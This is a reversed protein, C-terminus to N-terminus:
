RSSRRESDPADGLGLLTLRGLADGEAGRIGDETGAVDTREAVRGGVDTFADTTAGVGFARRILLEVM